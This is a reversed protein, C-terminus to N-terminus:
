DQKKRPQYLKTRTRFIGMRSREESGLINDDGNSRNYQRNPFDKKNEFQSNRFANNQRTPFSSLGRLGLSKGRSSPAQRNSTAYRNFLVLLAIHALTTIRGFLIKVLTFYIVVSGIIIITAITKNEHLEFYDDVFDYLLLYAEVLSRVVGNMRSPLGELFRLNFAYNSLRSKTNYIPVLLHGRYDKIRPHIYSCGTCYYANDPSKEICNRCYFKALHKNSDDCNCCNHIEEKTGMPIDGHDSWNSYTGDIRAM